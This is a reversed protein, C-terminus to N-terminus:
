ASIKLISNDILRTPGIYLALALLAEDRLETVDELTDTHVISVYDIRAQPVENKIFAKLMSIMGPIDNRYQSCTKRALELTRYLILAQKRETSDLYKNRSSLALGDADRVIPMIRMDVFFKLDHNMKRLIVSQQYDKQGFYARDPRVINFLKAVVTAVGRFHGPRSQGCLNGDLDQVTVWAKNSGEPGYIDEVSPFFIIDCGAEELLARDQEFTRPYKSLDESPGFQAPNVFISSVTLDNESVSARVLSLHGEHLAGMTPVFGISRGACREQQLMKYLIESSEIIQM